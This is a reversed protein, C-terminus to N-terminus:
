VIRADLEGIAAEDPVLVGEREFILTDFLKEGLGRVSSSRSLLVTTIAVVSM